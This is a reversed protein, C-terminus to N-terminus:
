IVTIAPTIGSSDIDLKTGIGCGIDLSPLVIEPVTTSDIVFLAGEADTIVIVRIFM